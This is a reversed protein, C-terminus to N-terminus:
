AKREAPVQGDSRINPNYFKRKTGELALAEPRLLSVLARPLRGELSLSVLSLPRRFYKIDCLGASFRARRKGGGAREREEKKGIVSENVNM